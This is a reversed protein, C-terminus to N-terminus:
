ATASAAPPGQQLQKDVRRVLEPPAPAGGGGVALLSSTDVDAFDPSELLDWDHTPVGVFNTVQEREILELAREPDWKYMIVLKLAPRRLSSLM